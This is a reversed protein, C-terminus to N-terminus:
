DTASSLSSHLNDSEQWLVPFPILHPPFMLMYHLPLAQRLDPFELKAKGSDSRTVQAVAQKGM